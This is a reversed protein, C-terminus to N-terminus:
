RRLLARLPQDAEDRLRSSEAIMLCSVAWEHLGILSAIETAREDRARFVDNLWRSSVVLRIVGVFWGVGVVVELPGVQGRHGFAVVPGLLAFGCTAVVLLAALASTRFQHRLRYRRADRYRTRAALVISKRESASLADWNSTDSFFPQPLSELRM